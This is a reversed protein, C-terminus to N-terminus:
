KNGKIINIEDLVYGGMELLKEKKGLQDMWNFIIM